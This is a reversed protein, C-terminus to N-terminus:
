SHFSPVREGLVSVCAHPFSEVLLEICSSCVCVGFVCVCVSVACLNPLSSQREVAGSDSEPKNMRIATPTTTSITKKAKETKQRCGERETDRDRETKIGRE